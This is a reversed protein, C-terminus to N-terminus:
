GKVTEAGVSVRVKGTLLQQILGQKQKLLLTKKRSLKDIEQDMHCLFSSIARQEQIPPILFPFKLWQDLKFIMKEIAVGVSAHFCTQQFYLTHSLYKLFNLDLQGNATCVSYENSVIAGNLDAPVVGCAGHIIQRRSILFDNERVEFQTPTKIDKGRLRERPEIGGRNRKAVVLQYETDDNLEISRKEIRLLDSMTKEQWGAPSAKLKPIGPQVSPPYIGRRVAAPVRALRNLQPASDSSFPSLQIEGTLLQQMLAQKRQQKAAIIRETVDIARDWTSLIDAIERQETLSPLPIYTKNLISLHIRRKESLSGIAIRDYLNMAWPTRLFTELYRSDVREIDPILVDYYGSVLVPFPVRSYGIAGFRLNMPNSVFDGPQVVAFKNEDADKLLFSREYRQTKQTVGDEITFSYLPFTDTDSSTESRQEFLAGIPVFGWREPISWYSREWHRKQFLSPDGM